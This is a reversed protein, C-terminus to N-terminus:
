KLVNLPGVVKEKDESLDLTRASASVRESHSSSKPALPVAPLKMKLNTEGDIAATEVFCSHKGLGGSVMVVCDVPLEEDGYILLIDGVLIDKWQIEEVEGSVNSSLPGKLRRTPKCNIANDAQHRKFDEVGDKIVSIFVVILMPALIAIPDIATAYVNTQNGIVAIIGIVLFYVNALRRFQELLSKPLYNLINYRSSIIINKPYSARQEQYEENEVEPVIPISRKSDGDKHYYGAFQKLLPTNMEEDFM